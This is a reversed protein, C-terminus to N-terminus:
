IRIKGRFGRVQYYSEAGNHYIFVRGFRSEGFIAGDKERIEKPTLLWSSTKTDFEGFSQLYYYDKESLLEIGLEKAMGFASGEPKFKKRSELADDDYCLSRRNKPTEKSCDFFIFENSKSDYDVVDPEGCTIEMNYLAKLKIPQNNLKIEINDWHFGLHRKLNKDFRNKLTQLLKLKDKNSLNEYNIM